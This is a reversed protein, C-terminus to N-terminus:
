RRAAPPRPAGAAAQARQARHLVDGDDRRLPHGARGRAGAAARAGNRKGDRLGDGRDSRAPARPEIGLRRARRGAARRPARAASRYREVLQERFDENRAAHSRSSSSSGIASPSAGRAHRMLGQGGRAGADDPDAETSLIRDLEALREDFHADLMALFLEEKNSFNAYVAGKTFGAREAVEDLSAREIGRRRGGDGGVGDAVGAHAGPAGQPHTVGRRRGARPRRVRRREVVVEGGREPVLTIARRAIREPRADAARLELRSVLERLVVKMEFLAFSAGLCRRM